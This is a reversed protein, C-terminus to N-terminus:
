SLTLTQGANAGTEKVTYEAEYSTPTSGISKIESNTATASAANFTLTSNANNFLGGINGRFPVTLESIACLSGGYTIENKFALIKLYSGGEKSLSAGGWPTEAASAATVTCVPANTGCGSLTMSNVQIVGGFGTTNAITANITAKCTTSLTSFTLTSASTEAVVTEPSAVALETGNSKWHPAAGAAGALAASASLAAVVSLVGIWIARKRM